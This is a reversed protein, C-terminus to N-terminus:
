GNCPLSGNSETQGVTVKEGDKIWYLLVSKPTLHMHTFLKQVTAEERNLGVSFTDSLRVNISLLILVNWLYTVIFLITM